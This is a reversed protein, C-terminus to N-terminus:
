FIKILTKEDTGLFLEQVHRILFLRSEEPTCKVELARREQVSTPEIFQAWFPEAAEKEKEGRGRDVNMGFLADPTTHSSRQWGTYEANPGRYVRNFDGIVTWTGMELFQVVTDCISKKVSPVLNSKYSTGLNRILGPTVAASVAMRIETSNASGQEKIMSLAAPSLAKMIKESRTKAPYREGLAARYKPLSRRWNMLHAYFEVTAFAAKGGLFKGYAIDGQRVVDIKWDWPGLEESSFFWHEPPTLEEISWGPVACKFFPIIGFHRVAEIMSEPSCVIHSATNIM